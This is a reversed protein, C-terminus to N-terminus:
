RLKELRKMVIQRETKGIESDNSCKEVETGLIEFAQKELRYM